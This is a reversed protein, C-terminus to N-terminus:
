RLIGCSVRKEGEGRVRACILNAATTPKDERACSILVGARGRARKPFQSQIAGCMEFTDWTLGLSPLLNFNKVWLVNKREM